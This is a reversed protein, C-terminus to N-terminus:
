GSLQRALYRQFQLSDRHTGIHHYFEAYNEFAIKWNVPSEGWSVSGAIRWHSLDVGGLMAEIPALRPALPAASPDLAIFVFGQWVELAFRPLSCSERAFVRSGEMM